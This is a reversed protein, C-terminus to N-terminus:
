GAVEVDGEALPAAAAVKEGEELNVLRVGKTNRGIVSIDIANIRIIKGSSTILMVGTADTVNFAGVVPGNRDETQIDIVGRGGRGQVRYDDILTRKGFGNECVTLLTSKADTAASDKAKEVITMSVVLDGEDMRVGIVGRANRGIARFDTEPFRIAMGSRMALVIDDEGTTIAVSMLSDGDDLTCAIIGSKKINSFETLGTKKIVGHRTAMVVYTNEAFEKIPLLATVTEGEQLSLFNVLARGRATRGAEPIEYVKKSYVRGKTTFVFFDALASAVFVYKTFDEDKVSAGAIGKGGRKQARYVAAPTRKIFGQHSVTVVMEEDEILDEVMIDDAEDIIETRRADGFKDKTAQLEAVIIADIKKGDALITKLRLIEAALEAYEQEIATAYAGLGPIRNPGFCSRWTQL